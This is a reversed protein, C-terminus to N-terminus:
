SGATIASMEQLVEDAMALFEPNNKASPAPSPATAAQQALAPYLNLLFLAALLLVGAIRNPLCKCSAYKQLIASERCERIQRSLTNL